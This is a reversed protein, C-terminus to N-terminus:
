EGEIGHIPKVTNWNKCGPCQWHLLRGTFGCQSCRYVSKNELLKAVFEKILLLNDRARGEAHALAYHALRELGRVSPRRHLASSLYELATDIGEREALLEALLLVPTIASHKEALGRLYITFEDMRNLERHCRLLPDMAEPLFDPDQEEILRYHQVAAQLDGSEEAARGAMLNARVCKPDVELATDIFQLSRVSDRQRWSEEAQECYFHAIMPHTSRGSLQELRRATDIAKNWDQEQQYIDVLQKLSQRIHTGSDLLQKFLEEARDLLGARMYDMGLELMALTREEDSLGRNGILNQHIRIARDVEGRRRFLNGLALHTEVMESEIELMKIFVEIAKDPQENLLYNIGRFYHPSLQRRAHRAQTQRRREGRLAVLWGSAAAVPLLLFLISTSDFPM